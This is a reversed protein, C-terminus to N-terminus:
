YNGALLAEVLNVPESRAMGQLTSAPLGVALAWPTAGPASLVPGTHQFHCSLSPLPYTSFAYPPAKLCTM